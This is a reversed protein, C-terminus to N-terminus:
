IEWNKVFFIPMSVLYNETKQERDYCVESLEHLMDCSNGIEQVSSYFVDTMACCRACVFIKLAVFVKKLPVM